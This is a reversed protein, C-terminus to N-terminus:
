TAAEQDIGRHPIPKGSAMARENAGNKSCDHTLWGVTGTVLAADLSV